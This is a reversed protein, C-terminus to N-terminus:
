LRRSAGCRALFHASLSIACLHGARQFWARQLIRAIAVWNLNKTRPNSRFKFQRFLLWEPNVSGSPDGYEDEEISALDAIAQPAGMVDSFMDGLWIVVQESRSYIQGM